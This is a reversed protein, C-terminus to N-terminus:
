SPHRAPFTRGLRTRGGHDSPKTRPEDGSGARPRLDRGAALGIVAIRTRRANMRTVTRECTLSLRRANVSGSPPALARHDLHPPRAPRRDGSRGSKLRLDNTIGPAAGHEDM